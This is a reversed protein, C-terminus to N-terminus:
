ADFHFNITKTNSVKSYIFSRRNAPILELTLRFKGVCFVIVAQLFLDQKPCRMWGDLLSATYKKHVFRVANSSINSCFNSILYFVISSMKRLKNPQFLFLTLVFLLWYQLFILFPKRYTLPSINNMKHDYFDFLKSIDIDHITKIYKM